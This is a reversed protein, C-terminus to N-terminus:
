LIICKSSSRRYEEESYAQGISSIGPDIRNREYYELLSRIGPFTNRKGDIKAKGDDRVIIKYHRIVPKLPKRHEHVSLVYCERATSYRTLYCHGGCRKLRRTAEHGTIEQHYGPHEGIMKEESVGTSIWASNNRQLSVHPM